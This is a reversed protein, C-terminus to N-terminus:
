PSEMESALEEASGEESAPEGYGPEPEDPMERRRRSLVVLATIVLATGLVFWLREGPRMVLDQTRQQLGQVFRIPGSKGAGSLISGWYYVVYSGGVVLLAGSVRSVHPLVRRIKRVLVERFGATGLCLLMLITAMGLGYAVFVALTGAASAAALGGGIVVLFVPLTCSLSGVAYAVGFAFISRYGPDEGSKTRMGPVPLSIYRGVLLWLGVGVLIVGVVITAWPVVRVIARAGFSFALGVAGFVAMFGAALTLGVALGEAVRGPGAHARSGLYFSIFAPLMAFGCPNVAAVLGAGFALAIPLENTRM